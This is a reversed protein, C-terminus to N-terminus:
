QTVLGAKMREEHKAIGHIVTTHDRNIRRGIEGLSLFVERSLRWMIEHRCKCIEPHRRSSRVDIETIGHKECVESIVMRWGKRITIPGSTEEGNPEMQPEDALTIIKASHYDVVHSRAVRIRAMREALSPPAPVPVPAPSPAALYGHPTVIMTRKNSPPPVFKRAAEDMNHRAAARRDHLERAVSGLTPVHFNM